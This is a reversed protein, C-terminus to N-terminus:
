RCLLHMVVFSIIGPSSKAGFEWVVNVESHYVNATDIQHLKCVSNKGSRNRKHQQSKKIQLNVAIIGHLHGSLQTM